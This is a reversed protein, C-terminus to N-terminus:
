LVAEQGPLKPSYTFIFAFIPLVNCTSKINPYINLFITVSYLYCSKLMKCYKRPSTLRPWRPSFHAIGLFFRPLFLFVVIFLSQLALILPPNLISCYFKSYKQSFGSLLRFFPCIPCLFVAFSLFFRCFSSFRGSPFKRGFNPFFSFISSIHLKKFRRLPFCNQSLFEKPM